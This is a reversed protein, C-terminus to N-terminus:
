LNVRSSKDAQYLDNQIQMFLKRGLDILHRSYTHNSVIYLGNEVFQMLQHKELYIYTNNDLNKDLRIWVIADDGFDKIKTKRYGTLKEKKYSVKHKLKGRSVHVIKNRIKSITKFENWHTPAIRYNGILGGKDSYNVNLRKSLELLQSDTFSRWSILFSAYFFSKFEDNTRQLWDKAFDEDEYLETKEKDSWNEEIFKKHASMEDFITSQIFDVYMEMKGFQYLISSFISSQKWFPMTM